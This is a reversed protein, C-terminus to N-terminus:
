EATDLWTILAQLLRRALCGVALKRKVPWERPPARAVKAPISTLSLILELFGINIYV